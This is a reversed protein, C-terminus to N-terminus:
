NEEDRQPKRTESPYFASGMIWLMGVENTISSRQQMDNAMESDSKIGLYIPTIYIHLYVDGLDSYLFTKRNNLNQWLQTFAAISM